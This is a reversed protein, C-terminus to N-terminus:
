QGMLMARERRAGIGVGLRKDLSELQTANSNTNAGRAKLNAVRINKRNKESNKNSNNKPSGTVKM